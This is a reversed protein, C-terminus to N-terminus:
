SESGLWLQKEYVCIRYQTQNEEIVGQPVESPTSFGFLVIFFIVAKRFKTKSPSNKVVWCKYNLDTRASGTLNSTLAELLPKEKM